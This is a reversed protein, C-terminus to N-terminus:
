KPLTQNLDELLLDVFWKWSDRTKSEVVVYTIPIIQNNGDKGVVAIFQGVHDGKLFCADLGILPRCITAFAVKCAELCINKREFVHRIKSTGCTIIVISNPNTRRNDEAYSRLHAYQESGAGELLEM